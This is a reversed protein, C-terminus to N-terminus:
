NGDIVHSKEVYIYITIEPANSSASIM